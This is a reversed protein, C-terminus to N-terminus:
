NAKAMEPQGVLFSKAALGVEYPLGSVMLDLANWAAQDACVIRTVGLAAITQNFALIDRPLKFEGINPLSGGPLPSVFHASKRSADLQLAIGDAPSNPTMRAPIQTAGALLRKLRGIDIQRRLPRVPDRMAFNRDCQALDPHLRSFSALMNDVLKKKRDGFSKGEFHDVYADGAIRHLWGVKRARYCFDSEEGYGIPFHKEDFLGVEDLAARRIYMCFGVTTHVDAVQGRNAEACIAALEAGDVELADDFKMALGPYCGIHSGFQSTLPNVTAIRPASYACTTMRDLWDGHVMTDSNLLLVDRDRHLAMGRNVTRTFGMNQPNRLLTIEGTAARTRLLELTEPESSGDDIVIIEAATASRAFKISDLLTEVFPAQNFVPVIIDVPLGSQRQAEHEM